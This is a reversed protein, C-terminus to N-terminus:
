FMSAGGAATPAPKATKAAKAAKPAKPDKPAAAPANPDVPKKQGVQKIVWGRAAVEEPAAIRQAALHATIGAVDGGLEALSRGQTSVASNIFSMAADMEEKSPAYDKTVYGFNSNKRIDFVKGVSTGYAKAVESNKRDAPEQFRIAYVVPLPMRGNLIDLVKAPDKAARTKPADAATPETSAPVEANAANGEAVSSAGAEAAAAGIATLLLFRNSFKSKM